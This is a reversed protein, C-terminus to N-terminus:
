FAPRQRDQSWHCHRMRSEDSHEILKTVDSPCLPSTQLIRNMFQSTQLIRVTCSFLDISRERWPQCRVSPTAVSLPLQFFVIM